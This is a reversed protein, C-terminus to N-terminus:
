EYRLNRDIARDFQLACPSGPQCPDNADIYGNYQHTRIWRYRADNKDLDAIRILLAAGEEATLTVPRQGDAEALRAIAATALESQVSSVAKSDAM